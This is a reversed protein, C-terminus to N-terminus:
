ETAGHDKLYQIINKYFPLMESSRSFLKEETFGSFGIEEASKGQNLASIVANYFDVLEQAKHLLTLGSNPLKQNVDAGSDILYKMVSEKNSIYASTLPTWGESNAQDVNAGLSIFYKVSDIDGERSAKILLTDGDSDQQDIDMGLNVLSKIIDENSGNEYAYHLPHEQKCYEILDSVNKFASVYLDRVQNTTLPTQNKGSLLLRLISESNILNPTMIVASVNSSLTEDVDSFISQISVPSLAKILSVSIEHGRKLLESRIEEPYSKKIDDLTMKKLNLGYQIGIFFQKRTESDERKIVARIRKKAEILKNADTKVLQQTASDSDVTNQPQGYISMLRDRRIEKWDENVNGDMGWVTASAFLMNAIILAKKM